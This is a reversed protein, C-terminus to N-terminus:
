AETRADAGAAVDEVLDALATAAEPRSAGLAARAMAAAAEPDELVARMQAALSAPTLADEPVMVAADARVLARANATQEDRIAAALPVLISPRGVCAIDAVSSAGSRSVVLQADALREPVDDFFGAVEARVGADRYVRRAEDADSPRAQHAVRLRARMGGPLLAVAAPVVRSLISAGQSGGIVLVSLAGDAGPARYPAGACELVSARVPNGTHVGRAGPPLETPWAGCAVVRVRAAFVANVRGLVGNAEHVITPRRLLTGAALAPITPYGGFGV